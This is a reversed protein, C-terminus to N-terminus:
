QWHVQCEACQMPMCGARNQEGLHVAVELVNHPNAGCPLCMWDAGCESCQWDFASHRASWSYTRMMEVRQQSRLVFPVVTGHAVQAFQNHVAGPGVPPAIRPRVARGGGYLDFGGGGGGGCLRTMMHLTSETPINYGALTKCYELQQGAFILSQHDPLIGETNSIKAKVTEITDSAEVGLTITKGSLTKVFIQM